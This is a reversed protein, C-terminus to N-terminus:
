KGMGLRKSAIKAGEAMARFKAWMVDETVRGMGASTDFGCDTGAQVRRPDGVVRAVNELRDAVVEPHEVFGTLDDVVGAVIIQDDALPHKELVRYEHQHRPNGFPFVFGGVNARQLIPIIDELPVDRDHPGEYNGWCVHLRVQERPVNVIAKNIAAIVREVFDLFDALPRDNYSLHRELALDPCDLQLLYGAKVVAEYEVQLATAVADLYADETDYFENKMAGVIIGPSPATYFPEAFGNPKADLVARFDALETKLETDDVYAVAAVARPPEYNGVAERAALMAAMQAKLIPYREVDGRPWRKWSSGFGSMRHRVYLFFAERQQEGNNGIDVGNEIQKQVIQAVADKGRRVIEDPDVAEGRARQVYLRTLEPPRPLSGTHTTLIREDSWRMM